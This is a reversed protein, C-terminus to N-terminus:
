AGSIGPGELEMFRSWEEETMGYGEKEADPFKHARVAEAYASVGERSIRGVDAFRRVFKAKHGEWTGMADDWVLVQGSTGGGAGIGITPIDVKRATIYSALAHPIAELVMAFAGADQLAEASRVVRHATHADRGQVRYGSLAAHRQPLLGIHAMVPIGITTLAKVIPVIEEGGELKVGEAGGEQMLQVANRIADGVSSHYSGFPMDAVLFPTKLGRSVAKVHHLMEPMTLRTTSDYGLCVQALSDGVLCIDVDGTECQRATFYDYATLMTIPTGQNRLQQLRQISVKKRSVVPPEGESPPSAAPPRVSMWRLGLHHVRNVLSTTFLRPALM